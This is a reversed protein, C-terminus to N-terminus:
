KIKIPALSISLQKIGINKFAVDAITNAGSGKVSIIRGEGFKTHEIIAGAIFESLDKKGQQPKNATFFSNSLKAGGYSKSEDFDVNKESNYSRSKYTNIVNSSSDYGSKSYSNYNRESSKENSGKNYNDKLDIIGSLENLFRSRMTPQREGYLFRSFARTIYLKERARTIAVYMLRREEELENDNTIARSIPMINEDLGCLFVVRFELGKVAHITAITVSDEENIDDTDSSLTISNLYESLGATKNKDQFDAVSSLFENINMKKNDNETTPAEFMGIFDTDEIIKKTLEYINLDASLIVLNTLISKFDNLKKLTGSNVPPQGFLLIDYLSQNNERAYNLLTEITKEGIGRKPVNIIRLFADNDNPNNIIRLYASLDKIEKREFFKFGGFIKNPIGYKLFEQEYARSLANVRMLVAFDSPKYGMALKSKIITAALLAENNEDAAEYFDVIEGGDSETWLRKARRTKNNKIVHNAADLINKTSRYNQELKYLKAGKFDKEFGLINEIEAGRWGYISQDDDGVAFINKNKVTLLKIINYQLSNTDQFEDVHIYKFKDSYYDLVDKHCALLEYTKILLDDFDLANSAKLEKEYASYIKLTEDIFKADANKAAYEDSSEGLMKAHNIHYKVNKIIKDNDINYYAFLKKLVRDKENDSYITFRDNYGLKEGFFRLMQVCMKHITCVWMKDSNDIMKSLREKMEKAAKNTFTIALINYPYVGKDNVLYAIRSTLVRTKGSGAGATVLVAGETDLVPKLQNENLKELYLEM